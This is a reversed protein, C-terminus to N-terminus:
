ECKLTVVPNVRTAHRAPLYSALLAAVVLIVTTGAFSAPDGGRVDYLLTELIKSIAYAGALGAVGGLLLIRGTQGMVLRLVDKPQAGLAMRIGIEQIRQAVSYSVVGHIGIAALLLALVGFAALL